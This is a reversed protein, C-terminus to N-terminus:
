AASGKIFRRIYDSVYLPKNKAGKPADTGCHICRHTQPNWVHEDKPVPFPWMKPVCDRSMLEDIGMESAVFAQPRPPPAEPNRPRRIITVAM